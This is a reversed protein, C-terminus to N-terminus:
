NVRTSKTGELRGYDECGDVTCLGCCRLCLHGQGRFWSWLGCFVGIGALLFALFGRRLLLWGCIVSVLFVFAVSPVTLM